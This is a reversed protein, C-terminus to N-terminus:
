PYVETGTLGSVGSTKALQQLFYFDEGARRLNM